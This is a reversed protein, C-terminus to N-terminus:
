PAPKIGYNDGANIANEIKTMVIEWDKEALNFGHDADVFLVEINSSLAYNNRIELGGYEDNVGQIILMPTKLEKLHAYRDPEMEKGPNKFAYAICIICKIKLKDAILSATVGGSSFSLVIIENEEGLSQISKQLIQSRRKISGGRSRLYGFYHWHFLGYTIQILRLGIYQIFVPLDNFGYRTRPLRYIVAGVPDEWIVKFDPLNLKQLVAHTLYNNKVWNDRGVLFLIKKRAQSRNM